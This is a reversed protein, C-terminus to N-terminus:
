VHLPEKLLYLYIFRYVVSCFGPPLYEDLHKIQHIDGERMKHEVVEAIVGQYLSKSSPRHGTESIPPKEIQSRSSVLLRFWATKLPSKRSGVWRPFQTMQDIM